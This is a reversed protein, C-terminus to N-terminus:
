RAAKLRLSARGIAVLVSHRRLGVSRSAQRLWRGTLHFNIFFLHLSSCLISLNHLRHFIQAYVQSLEPAMYALTGCTLQLHEDPVAFRSLGFDGVFIDYDNEHSAMFINEPKLDRHVIGRLHLYRVASLLEAMLTQAINEPFRKRKVLREHLDGGLVLQMIIYINKRSEFVNKLKIVSPHRLLKMVAIECHMAQLGTPTLKDKDIVKIAYRKNTSKRTALKVSGFKGLGLEKGISYYEEVDHMNAAARLVSIWQDREQLTKAYLVRSQKQTASGAGGKSSAAQRHESTIIEFGYEMFPKTDRSSQYVEVFCGPLFTVRIPKFDSKKAFTYLTNDKLSYWRKKAIRRFRAGEKYLYGELVREHGDIQRTSAQLPPEQKRLSHSSSSRPTAVQTPQSTVPTISPPTVLSISASTPRSPASRHISYQYHCGCTVCFRPLEDLLRDGCSSCGIELSIDGEAGAPFYTLSRKLSHTSRSVSHTRSHNASSNYSDKSPKKHTKLNGKAFSSFASGVSPAALLSSASLTSNSPILSQSRSQKSPSTDSSPSHLMPPPATSSSTALKTANTVISLSALPSSAAKSPSAPPYMTVTTRRVPEYTSSSTQTPQTTPLFFGTAASLSRQAHPSPVAVPVPPAPLISHRKTALYSAGISRARPSSPMSIGLSASSPTPLISQRKTALYAVTQPSLNRPQQSAASVPSAPEVPASSDSTPGQFPNTPIISLRKPPLPPSISKDAGVTSAASLTDSDLSTPSSAQSMAASSGLFTEAATSSISAALPTSSAVPSSAIISGRKPPLAPAAGTSIISLRKPLPISMTSTSPDHSIMNSILSHRKSPIRSGTEAAASPSTSSGSEHSALNSLSTPSGGSNLADGPSVRTFGVVFPRGSLSCETLLNKVFEYSRQRVDVGDISYFVDGFRIHMHTPSKSNWLDAAKGPTVETVVVVNASIEQIGLGLPSGQLIAKFEGTQSLVLSNDSSSPAAEEYITSSVAILSPRKSPVTCSAPPTPTNSNDSPPRRTAAINSATSSSSAVTLASPAAVWVGPVTSVNNSGTAVNLAGPFSSSPPPTPSAILSPRKSSPLSAPPSPAVSHSPSPSPLISQRKSSLSSPPSNTSVVTVGGGTPLLSNRKVSNSATVPPYLFNQQAQFSGPPSPSAKFGSGAQFSGPPSPSAKFGSGSQFSGPPSSSTSNILSQRRDATSNTPSPLLSVRRQASILMPSNSPEPLLSVRRQAPSMAAKSGVVTESGGPVSSVSFRKGPSLLSSPPAMSPPTPRLLVKSPSPPPKPTSVTAGLPPQISSSAAVPSFTDPGQPPFSQPASIPSVISSSTTPSSVDLLSGAPLSQAGTPRSIPSVTEGTHTISHSTEESLIAPIAAKQQPPQSQSAVTTCSALASPASTSLTTPSVAFSAFTDASSSSLPTSVAPVSDSCCQSSGAAPSSSQSFPLSTTDPDVAETSVSLTFLSPSKEPQANPELPLQPVSQLKAAFANDQPSDPPSYGHQDYVSARFISSEGSSSSYRRDDRSKVISDSDSDDHQHQIPSFKLKQGCHPCFKLVTEGCNPCSIVIGPNKHPQFDSHSLSITRKRTKKGDDELDSDDDSSDEAPGKINRVTSERSVSIEGYTQEYIEDVKRKPLLVDALTLAATTTDTALAPPSVALTPPSSTNPAANASPASSGSSSPTVTSSPMSISSSFAFAVDLLDIIDPSEDLWRAFQYM